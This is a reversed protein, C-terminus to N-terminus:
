NWIHHGTSNMWTDLEHFLKTTKFDEFLYSIRLERAVDGNGIAKGGKYTNNRIVIAICYMVDHGRHLNYSDSTVKQGRFTRLEVESPFHPLVSNNGFKQVVDLCTNCDIVNVGDFLKTMCLGKFRIGDKNVSVIKETNYYQLYSYWELASFVDTVINKFRQHTYEYVLDAVADEKRLMMMECDHGDTLFFNPETYSVGRLNDFDADKIGILRDNYAQLEHIIPLIYVCDGTPFFFMLNENFFKGYLGIDDIGEVVVCVKGNNVPHNLEDEVDQVMEDIFINDTVTNDM